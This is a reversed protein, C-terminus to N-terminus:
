PKYRFRMSMDIARVDKTLAGLNAGYEIYVPLNQGTIGAGQSLM